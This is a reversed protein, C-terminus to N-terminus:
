HSHPISPAATINPPLDLRAISKGISTASQPRSFAAAGTIPRKWDCHLAVQWYDLRSAAGDLLIRGGEVTVRTVDVQLMRAAHEVIEDRAQACAIWMSTGGIEISMRGATYSEDPCYRTDGSVVVVQAIPLRLEEAAIQAIATVIGQGLEVKASFVRVVGPENFDVWQALLPNEQISRPLAHPTM